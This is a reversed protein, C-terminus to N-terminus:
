PISEHRVGEAIREIGAIGLEPNVTADVSATLIAAALALAARRELPLEELYGWVLAACAADGAGSVNRSALEASLKLPARVLGRSPGRPQSDGTSPGEYYLGGGGLSIFVEGLGKARLAAGLVAAERPGPELCSSPAPLGSLAAAEGLNPKAFAFSALHERARLAKTASVPDLVLRPMEQGRILGPGFGAAPGYRAALWAISSGCLNADVVILSASDLLASREILAGPLLEDIISMSAVAGALSGDADLLCLYQSAERARLRLSSYLGIGISACSAELAQSLADDGLATVLEVELGLRVLNEAINRGVGGPSMISIGPNSDGSRFPALSRGQIDMNMGGVVVVLGKKAM